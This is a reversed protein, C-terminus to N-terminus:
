LACVDLIGHQSVWPPVLECYLKWSLMSQQDNEQDDELLTSKKVGVGVEWLNVICLYVAYEFVCTFM